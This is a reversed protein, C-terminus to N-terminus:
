INQEASRRNEWTVTKKEGEPQNIQVVFNISEPNEKQFTYGIIMVRGAGPSLPSSEFFLFM